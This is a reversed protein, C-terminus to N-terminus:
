KYFQLPVSQGQVLKLRYRSGLYLFTEGHDWERKVTFISLLETYHLWRLKGSLTQFKPYTLYLVRM